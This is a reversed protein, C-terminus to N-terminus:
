QVCLRHALLHRHAAAGAGFGLQLRPPQRGAGYRLMTLVVPKNITSWRPVPDADRQGLIHACDAFRKATDRNLWGGQEELALPTDWHFMTPSPQIGAALLADVLRDYFDLGEKNARGKGEPQIRTWAFSFRYADVGLEKMLAVDEPYRHYHDCAVDGTDGNLTRGPTHSFADWTSAGRGGETVAGEIQYSATSVGWLFDNPLGLDEASTM